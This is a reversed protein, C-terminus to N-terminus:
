NMTWPLPPPAGRDQEIHTTFTQGNGLVLHAAFTTRLPQGTLTALELDAKVKALLARWRQREAKDVLDRQASASRAMGTPTLRFDRHQADPMPLVIQFKDAQHQFAIMIAGPQTAYAFHQVGYRKLTRELEEKSRAITTSTNAAYTGKGSM